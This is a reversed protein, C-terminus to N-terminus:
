AAGRRARGAGAAAGAAAAAAPRRAARPASVPSATAPCACPHAPRPPRAGSHLGGISVQMRPRSGASTTRAIRRPWHSGWPAAAAPRAAFACAAIPPRLRSPSPSACLAAMAARRAARRSPVGDRREAARGAAGGQEGVLVNSPELDRHIVGKQRAHQVAHCVAVVLRVREAAGLRRADCWQGIPVGDVYEMAVWPAGGDTTGADLVRAIGPHEILALAQREVAFRAAVHAPVGTRIVKVAVRRRIPASQEAAFVRGRGGEGLLGTVRYPGIAAPWGSGPDSRGPGSGRCGAGRGPPQGPM